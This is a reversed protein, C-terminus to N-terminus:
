SGNYKPGKRTTSHGSNALPSRPEQADLNPESRHGSLVGFRGNTYISSLQRSIVRELRDHNGKARSLEHYRRAQSTTMLIYKGEVLVRKFQSSKSPEEMPFLKDILRKM